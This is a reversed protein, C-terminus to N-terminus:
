VVRGNDDQGKPKNTAAVFTAAAGWFAAEQAASAAQRSQEAAEQAAETQAQAQRRMEKRYADEATERRMDRLEQHLLNIAQQLDSVRGHEFYELLTGVYPLYDKHLITRLKLTQYKQYLAQGEKMVSDLQKQLMPVQQAKEKVWADYEMSATVFDACLNGREKKYHKWFTCLTLILALSLILLIPPIIFVFIGSLHFWSIFSEIPNLLFEGIADSLGLPFMMVWLILVAVCLIGISFKVSWLFTHFLAAIISPKKPKPKERPKQYGAIKGELAIRWQNLEYLKRDTQVYERLAQVVEQNTM